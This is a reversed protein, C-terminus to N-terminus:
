KSALPITACPWTQQMIFAKSERMLCFCDFSASVSYLFEQEFAPLHTCTNSHCSVMIPDKPESYGPMQVIRLLVSMIAM